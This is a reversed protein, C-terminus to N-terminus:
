ARRLQENLEAQRVDTRSQRTLTLLEELSTQPGVSVGFHQDFQEIADGALSGMVQLEGSVDEMSLDVALTRRAAEADNRARRLAPELNALEVELRLVDYDGVLGARHMAQTEELAQRVRRVSEANLRVAEEALLVDFYRQKTRTVIEQAAGRVVEAQLSQYRSAAGVGIFAAARFIPQELRLQGFWNNDTGFRVLTLEGPEADPDFIQAPLFQGPIDLNRTYNAS